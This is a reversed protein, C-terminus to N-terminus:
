GALIKPLPPIPLGKAQARKVKQDYNFKAVKKAEEFQAFALLTILQLTESDDASYGDRTLFADLQDLTWLGETFAKQAQALTLSKHPSKTKYQVTALRMRKETDGLPLADLLTSFEATTIQGDVVRTEIADVLTKLVSDARRLDEANLVSGALDPLYGLDGLQSIAFDRGASGYRFFLEIDAVTLRKAHLRILKEARDPDWGQLELDRVITAHDMLTQAFPNIVEAPTFRQPHFQQNLDYQFPTAILTKIIPKLMLRMQKSLGLGSSVQEGILRFDKFLGASSLEGALGLLATAVGFNIIMGAFRAAGAQGDIDEVNNSATLEQTFNKIFLNGIAEARQIHADFGEDGPFMGVDFEGGLLENLVLSSVRPVIPDLTTRFADIYELGAIAVEPLVNKFLWLLVLGLAGGLLTILAALAALLYALGSPLGMDVLDDHTAQFVARAEDLPHKYAKVNLSPPDPSTQLLRLLAAIGALEVIEPAAAKMAQQVQDDTLPFPQDSM